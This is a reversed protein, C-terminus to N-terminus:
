LYQTAEPGTNFLLDVISLDPIFGHRTGFVQTYSSHQINDVKASGETSLITSHQINQTKESSEKHTDNRPLGRGRCDANQIEEAGETYNDNRPLGRGHCDANRMKNPDFHSRLDVIGPYEKEFKETKGWKVDLHLLKCIKEQLMENWDVLFETKKEYYPALEDEYYEFYPSRRYASELSRWHLKQWPGSYSIRCDKMIKRESGKSKEIPVILDLKGNAGYITCRNRYTQKIFHEHLEVTVENSKLLGYYTINGM